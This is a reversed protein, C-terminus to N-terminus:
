ANMTSRSAIENMPYLRAILVNQAPPPPMGAAPPPYTVPYMPQGDPGIPVVYCASLTLGALAAVLAHTPVRRM